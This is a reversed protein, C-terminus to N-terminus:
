GRVRMEGCRKGGPVCIECVCVMAERRMTPESLVMRSFSSAASSFDLMLGATGWYSPFM